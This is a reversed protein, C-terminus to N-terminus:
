TGFYAATINQREFGRCAATLAVRGEQFCYFRV